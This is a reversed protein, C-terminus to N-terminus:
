PALQRCKLIVYVALYLLAQSGVYIARRFHKHM